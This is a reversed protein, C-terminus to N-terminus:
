FSYGNGSRYLQFLSRIKTKRKRENSIIIRTKDKAFM